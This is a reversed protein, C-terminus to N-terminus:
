RPKRKGRLTERSVSHPLPQPSPEGIGEFFADLKGAVLEGQGKFIHGYVDVTTRISSHGMRERAVEIPVGILGMLANATHRLDYMRLDAPFRYARDGAAQAAKEAEVAAKELLPKWWRRRLNSLRIPDGEPSTFIFEGSGEALCRKLRERLADVAIAPLDIRRRRKATKTAELTPRYGHGAAEVLDGTVTLYRESLHVDRRRLAFLEGPGMTSTLALVILAELRDGRAAELLFGIEPPTLVRREIREVKPPTVRAAPNRTILDLDVAEELVRHVLGYVARKSRQGVELEDLHRRIDIPELDILNRAALKGLHNKILWAYFGRTKARIHAGEVWREIFPKLQVTGDRTGRRGVYKEIREEIAVRSARSDDGLKGYVKKRRMRGDPARGLTVQGVYRDYADSWYVSGEGNARKQPKRPV